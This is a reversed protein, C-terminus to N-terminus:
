HTTFTSNPITKQVEHPTIKPPFAGLYLAGVVLLALGAGLAILFVRRMSSGNNGPVSDASPSEPAAAIPPPEPGTSADPGM